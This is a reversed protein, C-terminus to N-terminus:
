VDTLLAWGCAQARLPHDRDASTGMFKSGARPKWRLHGHCHVTDGPHVTFGPAARGWALPQPPRAPPTTQTVSCAGPLSEAGPSRPLEGWGQSGPAGM